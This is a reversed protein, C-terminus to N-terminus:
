FYSGEAPTVTGNSQVVYSIAGGSVCWSNETWGTRDGSEVGGNVALNDAVAHTVVTGGAYPLMTVALIAALCAAAPRKWKRM